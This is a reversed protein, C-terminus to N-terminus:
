QDSCYPSIDLILRSSTARPAPTRESGISGDVFLMRVDASVSGFGGRTGGDTGTFPSSTGGFSGINFEIEQTGTISIPTTGILEENGSDTGSLSLTAGQILVDASTFDVSAHGMYWIQKEVDGVYGVGNQCSSFDLVVYSTELLWARAYSSFDQTFAKVPFATSSYVPGATSLAPWADDGDSGDHATEESFKGADYIAEAGSSLNQMGGGFGGRWLIDGPFIVPYILRDLIGRLRNPAVEDFLHMSTGGVSSQSITGLGVDSELESLTWVNTSLGDGTTNKCWGRCHTNGITSDSAASLNVLATITTAISGWWNYRFIDLGYLDDEILATSKTGITITSISQATNVPWAPRNMGICEYRDGVANCLSVIVPRLQAATKSTWPTTPSWPSM